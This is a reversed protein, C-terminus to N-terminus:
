DGHPGVVLVTKEEGFKDVWIEEVSNDAWYITRDYRWEKADEEAKRKARLAKQMEKLRAYEASTLSRMPEDLCYDGLFFDEFKHHWSASSWNSTAKKAFELIEEDTTLPGFGRVKYVFEDRSYVPTDNVYGYVWKTTM